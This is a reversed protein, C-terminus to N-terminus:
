QGPIDKLLENVVSKPDIGHWEWRNILFGWSLIVTLDLPDTTFKNDCAIEGLMRDYEAQGISSNILRELHQVKLQHFDTM